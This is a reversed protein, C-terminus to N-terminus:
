FQKLNDYATARLFHTAATEPLMKARADLAQIALPYQKSESASVALDGYAPGLSPDLKVASILEPLAEPFRHQQMLVVAYQHHTGADKPNQQLLDKYAAAAEDYRKLEALLKA